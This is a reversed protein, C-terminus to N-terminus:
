EQCEKRRINLNTLFSVSETICSINGLLAKPSLRSHDCLEPGDKEVAQSYYGSTNGSISFQGM